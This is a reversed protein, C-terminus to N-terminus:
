TPMLAYIEKQRELGLAEMLVIVVCVIMSIHPTKFKFNAACLGGLFNVFLANKVLV